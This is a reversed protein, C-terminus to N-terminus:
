AAALARRRRLVAGATGFGVIMMAWTAPEPVAGATSSLFEVRLGSPNGSQQGFNVVRVTLNNQGAVFASADAGFDTWLNFNGAPTVTGDVLQTNNLRIWSVGNDAAFRALFSAGGAEISSLDFSLNYEYYGANLPDTSEGATVTPGIWRSTANDDMWPGNLPFQGNTGSVYATLASQNSDTLTWHLDVGNTAVSAHDAGVGTNYLGIIEAAQAAGALALACAGAAVAALTGRLTM